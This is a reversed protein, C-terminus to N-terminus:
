AAAWLEAQLEHASDLMVPADWVKVMVNFGGVLTDMVQLHVPNGDLSTMGGELLWEATEVSCAFERYEVSVLALRGFELPGDSLPHNLDGV